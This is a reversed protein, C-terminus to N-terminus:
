WEQVFCQMCVCVCVCCTPVTVCTAFCSLVTWYHHYVWMCVAQPHQTGVHMRNWKVATPAHKHLRGSIKNVLSEASETKKRQITAHIRTACIRQLLIRNSLQEIHM